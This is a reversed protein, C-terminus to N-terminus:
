LERSYTMYERTAKFGHKGYFETLVTWDIITQRAGQDRLSCLAAALLAHGHGQGRVARSVGIPGLAAWNPGLSRSWVAGARRRLDGDMQTMAFGEIVDSLVLVYVRAPDEYLKEMVDANWRGPFEQRLFADIALADDVSAPRVNPSPVTPPKYDLLDREVDFCSVGLKAFHARRLPELLIECDRPVGPFFHRWDGGFQWHRIGTASLTSRARSLAEDWAREERFVMASVHATDLRGFRSSKVILFGDDGFTCADAILLGSELTNFAFLSADIWYHEPLLENWLAVARDM